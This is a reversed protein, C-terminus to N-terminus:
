KRGEQYTGEDKSRKMWRIMKGVNLKGYAGGRECSNKSASDDQFSTMILRIGQSHTDYASRCSLNIKSPTM